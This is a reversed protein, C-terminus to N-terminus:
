GTSTRFGQPLRHIHDAGPAGKPEEGAPMGLDNMM